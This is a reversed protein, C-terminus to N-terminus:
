DAKYEDHCAKCTGAVAAFQERMAAEDGGKAIESLEGAERRFDGLKASFDDWNEWIAPLSETMAGTDSGPPFGEEIQGSLWAVREARRAFEAADFPQQGRVMQNMPSFNWLVMRFVGQRYPIAIDARVAEALAAGPLALALAAVALRHRM